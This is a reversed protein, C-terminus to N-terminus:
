FRGTPHTKTYLRGLGQRASSTQSRPGVLQRRPPEAVLNGSQQPMEATLRDKIDNDEEVSHLGIATNLSVAEVGAKDQATKRPCGGDSTRRDRGEEYKRPTSGQPVSRIPLFPLASSIDYYGLSELRLIENEVNGYANTLFSLHPGLLIQLPLDARFQVGDLLFGKLEQDPWSALSELIFDNNLDSSPALSFDLPVAPLGHEFGRCDWIIGRAQELFQDQGIVLPDHPEIAQGFGFKHLAGRIRKVTKEFKIM